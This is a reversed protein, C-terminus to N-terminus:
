RYKQRWTDVCDNSCFYLKRSFDKRKKFILGEEETRSMSIYWRKIDHIACNEGCNPCYDTCDKMRQEKRLREEEVKLELLAKELTKRELEQKKIRRQEDLVNKTKSVADFCKPCNIQVDDCVPHTILKGKPGVISEAKTESKLRIKRCYAGVIEEM